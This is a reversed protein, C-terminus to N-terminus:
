QDRGEAFGIRRRNPPQPSTMQRIAAVLSLIQHDHNALHRELQSLKRALEASQGIAERLRVLARVVFVSVEVARTSNLVSAAMLAGHETFAHPFGKSYKLKRLHDCKAVVEAKEARTLRFVFDEPFRGRNRGVQENLRKTAVGYFEALDADIIVKEGRILLIRSEILSTRIVTKPANM